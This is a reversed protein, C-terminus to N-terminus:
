FPLKDSLDLENSSPEQQEGQKELIEKQRTMSVYVPYQSGDKVRFGFKRFFATQKSIPSDQKNEGYGISGTCELYLEPIEGLTDGVVDFFYEMLLTGIGMGLNNPNVWVRSIELGDKGHPSFRLHSNDPFSFYVYNHTKLKGGKKMDVVSNINSYEYSIPSNVDFFSFRQDFEEKVALFAQNDEVEEVSVIKIGTSEKISKIVDQYKELLRNGM